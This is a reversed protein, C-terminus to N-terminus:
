SKNITASPAPLPTNKTRTYSTLQLSHHSVTVTEISIITAINANNLAEIKIDCIKIVDDKKNCKKKKNCM